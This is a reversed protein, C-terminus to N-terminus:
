IGQEFRAPGRTKNAIDLGQVSLGKGTPTRIRACFRFIDEDLRFQALNQGEGGHHPSLVAIQLSLTTVAM